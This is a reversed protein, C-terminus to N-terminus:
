IGSVFQFKADQLITVTKKEGLANGSSKTPQCWDKTLFSMIKNTNRCVFGNFELQNTKTTQKVNQLLTSSMITILLTTWM